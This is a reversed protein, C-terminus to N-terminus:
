QGIKIKITEVLENYIKKTISRHNFRHEEGNRLVLILENERLSIIEKWTKIEDYPIFYEKRKIIYGFPRYGPSIGYEYITMQTFGFTLIIIITFFAVILILIAINIYIPFNQRAFGFFIMASIFILIFYMSLRKFLIRNKSEQKIIKGKKFGSRLKLVMKKM